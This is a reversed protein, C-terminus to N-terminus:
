RSVVKRKVRKPEFYQRLLELAKYASAKGSCSFIDATALGREPWTHISFHSESLLIVGTVGVPQFQYFKEGVANFGAGEVIRMMLERVTDVHTLKQTPCGYMDALIHTGVTMMVM